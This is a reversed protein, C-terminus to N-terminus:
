RRGVAEPIRLLAIHHYFIQDLSFLQIKEFAALTGCCWEKEMSFPKKEIVHQDMQEFM